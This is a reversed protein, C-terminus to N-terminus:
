FVRWNGRWTRLLLGGMREWAIGILDHAIAMQNVVERAIDEMSIEFIAPDASPKIREIQDIIGNGSGEAARIERILFKGAESTKPELALAVAKDVLPKVVEQNKGEVGMM